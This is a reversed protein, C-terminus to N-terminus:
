KYKRLLLFVDWNLSVTKNGIISHRANEFRILNVWIRFPRKSEIKWCMINLHLASVSSSAYDNIKHIFKYSLKFVFFVPANMSQQGDIQIHPSRFLSFFFFFQLVLSISWFSFFIDSSLLLYFFSYKHPYFTFTFVFPDFILRFSIRNTYDSLWFRVLTLNVNWWKEKMKWENKNKQSCWVITFKTLIRYFNILRRSMRNIRFHFLNKLLNIRSGKKWIIEM